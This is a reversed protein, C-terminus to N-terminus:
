SNDENENQSDNQQTQQKPIGPLDRNNIIYRGGCFFKMAEQYKKMEEETM